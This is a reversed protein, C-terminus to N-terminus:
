IKNLMTAEMLTKLKNMFSLEALVRFKVSWLVINESYQIQPINSFTVWLQALIKTLM